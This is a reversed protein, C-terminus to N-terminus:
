ALFHAVRRPADTVARQLASPNADAPAGRRYVFAPHVVAAGAVIAVEALRLAAATQTVAFREALAILDMRAEWTERVFAITPMALAATLHEAAAEVDPGDYGVHDLHIEALEHLLAWRQRVFSLGARIRITWRGSSRFSCADGAPLRLAEELRAGPLHAAIM